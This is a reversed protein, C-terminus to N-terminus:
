PYANRGYSMWGVAARGRRKATRRARDLDAVFEDRAESDWTAGAGDAITAIVGAEPGTPVPAGTYADASRQPGVWLTVEWEIEPDHPARDLYAVDPHRRRTLEPLDAPPWPAVGPPAHGIGAWYYDGIGLRIFVRDARARGWAIADEASLGVAEERVRDSTQWSAWFGATLYLEGRRPGVDDEEAIFVSDRRDRESSVGPMM